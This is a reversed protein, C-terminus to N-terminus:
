KLTWCADQGLFNQWTALILWVVLATTQKCNGFSGYGGEMFYLMVLTVSYFIWWSSFLYFITLEKIFFVNIFEAAQVKRSKKEM